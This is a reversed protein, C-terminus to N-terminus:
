EEPMGELRAGRGIGRTEFWGQDMELAYRAPRKSCRIETNFPELDLVDVVVGQEDFFAASLPLPTDKMWLCHRRVEDFRFLMGSDEALETRGMLGRERQAVTKAYEAQLEHGGLRLPLPEDAQAPMAVAVLLLLLAVRM